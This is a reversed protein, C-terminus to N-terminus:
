RGARYFYYSGSCHGREQAGVFKPSCTSTPLQCSGHRQISTAKSFRGDGTTSTAQFLEWTTPGYGGDQEVSAVLKGVVTSKDPAEWTPGAYVRGQYNVWSHDTLNEDTSRLVWRYFSSDESSVTCEYNAGGYSSAAFYPVEGAPPRISAPVVEPFDVTPNDACAAVFLLLVLQAGSLLHAGSLHKPM